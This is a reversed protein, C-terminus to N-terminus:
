RIVTTGVTTITITKGAVSVWDVDFPARGSLVLTDGSSAASLAASLTLKPGRSPSERASALGDCEDSGRDSNVYIRNGPVAPPAGGGSDAGANGELVTTERPDDGTPGSVGDEALILLPRPWYGLICANIELPGPAPRLQIGAAATAYERPIVVQFWRTTATGELLDGALDTVVPAAWPDVLYVRLSSGPTDHCLIDLSLDDQLQEPDWFISLAAPGAHPVLWANTSWLGGVQRAGMWWRPGANIYQDGLTGHPDGWLMVARQLRDVAGFDAFDGLGSEPRSSTDLAAESAAPTAADVPAPPAERLAEEATMGLLDLWRQHFTPQQARGDLCIGAMITMVVAM